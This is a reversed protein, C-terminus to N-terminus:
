SIMVGLMCTTLPTIQKKQLSSQKSGWVMTCYMVSFISFIFLLQGGFVSIMANGVTCIVVKYWKGLSLCEM